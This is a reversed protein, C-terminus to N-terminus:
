GTAVVPAAGVMEAYLREMLAANDQWRYNAEVFARGGPGDRRAVGRGRGAARDRGGAGRRRAAPVLLGTVGDRVVDPIGHIDSAVVPLGTASAELASVGFGEWTSPMAFVDLRRLVDPVADHAVGGLFEVHLRLERALSELEGRSPGEGALVVSLEVGRDRLTAVARLLYEFGKEPSLRSVAGVTM